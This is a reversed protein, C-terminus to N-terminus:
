WVRVLVMRVAKIEEIWRYWEWGAVAVGWGVVCEKGTGQAERIVTDKLPIVGKEVMKEKERRNKILLFLSLIAFFVSFYRFIGFFYLFINFFCRFVGFFGCYTIRLISLFYFTSHNGFFFVGFFCRFFTLFCCFVFLFCCFVFLSHMFISLILLFLQTLTDILL